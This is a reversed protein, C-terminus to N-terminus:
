AGNRVGSWIGQWAAENKRRFLDQHGLKKVGLEEPRRLRIEHKARPMFELFQRVCKLKTMPDDMFVFSIVPTTINETHVMSRGM